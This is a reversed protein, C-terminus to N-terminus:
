APRMRRVDERPPAGFLRSYERSFQSASEYGVLGSARGADINQSVMLQRAEQLRLQKQYQLPSTGTIARFHQRFTSPSMHARAAFDDVDLPERFNQKLWAVATAIQQSPSGNMALQQLQAGHPGALLRVTIERQILPALQPVLAPEALLNVLRVLAEILPADLAQVAISPGSPRRPTPLRMEAAVQAIDRTDLTVVLALVPEHASARTVHSIVPLDVTTLLSQGPGYNIVEEGLLVQKNGQAVVALGLHYICHLPETPAKRRYLLLAPIATAYDGDSQAVAAIAHALRKPAPAAPNNSSVNANV